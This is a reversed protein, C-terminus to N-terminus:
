QLALAVALGGIGLATLIPTISIGLTQLIVLTGILFVVVRTITSIIATAPILGPTRAIKLRILGVIIRSLLLAVSFILAVFLIRGVLDINEIGLPLYRLGFYLGGLIGWFAFLGKPSKFFVNDLSSKSKLAAKILNKLVLIELLFGLTIGGTIFAGGILYKDYEM